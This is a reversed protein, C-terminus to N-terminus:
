DATDINLPHTLSSVNLAAQTSYTQRISPSKMDLELLFGTLELPYVCKREDHVNEIM